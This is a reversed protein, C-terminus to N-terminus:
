LGPELDKSVPTPPKRRQLGDDSGKQGTSSSSSSSPGKPPHTTQFHFEKPVTVSLLTKEPLPEVLLDSGKPIVGPGALRKRQAQLSESGALAAKYSAENKRRHLAVEKQLNRIRELEEEESSNPGTAFLLLM